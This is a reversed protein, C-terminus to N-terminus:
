FCYPKNDNQDERECLVMEKGLKNLVVLDSGLYLGLSIETIIKKLSTKSKHGDFRKTM